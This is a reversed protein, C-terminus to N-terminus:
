DTFVYKNGVMVIKYFELAQSKPQKFKDENLMNLYQERKTNYDGSPRGVVRKELIKGVREKEDDDHNQMGNSKGKLLELKETAKGMLEVLAKAHSNNRTKKNMMEKM